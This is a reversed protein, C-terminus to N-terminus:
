KVGIKRTSPVGRVEVDVEEEEPLMFKQKLVPDSVNTSLAFEVELTSVSLGKPIALLVRNTDTTVAKNPIAFWRSAYEEIAPLTASFTEKGNVRLVVSGRFFGKSKAFMVIMRRPQGPRTLDSLAVNTKKDLKVKISKKLLSAFRLTDLGERIGFVVGLVVLVAAMAFAFQNELTIRSFSLALGLVILTALLGGNVLITNRSRM